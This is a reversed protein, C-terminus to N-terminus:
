LLRPEGIAAVDARWHDGKAWCWAVADPVWLMPELSPPVLDWFLSEHCGAMRCAQTLTRRDFDLTSEDREIILREAEGACDRVIAQLCRGRDQSTVGPAQYLRVRLGLECITALIARRRAPSEKTFHLRRQGALRLGALVRRQQRVDASSTVAAAYLLGHAKSEDAFVHDSM